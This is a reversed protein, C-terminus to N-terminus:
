DTEMETQSGKFVEGLEQFEVSNELKCVFIFTDLEEVKAM